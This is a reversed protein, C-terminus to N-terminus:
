RMVKTRFGFNPNYKLQKAFILIKNHNKEQRPTEYCIAFFYGAFLESVSLEPLCLVSVCVSVHYVRYDASTSSFLFLYTM